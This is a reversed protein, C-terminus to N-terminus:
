WLALWTLLLKPVEGKRLCKVNACSLAFDGATLYHLHATKGQVAPVKAGVESMQFRGGWLHRHLIVFRFSTNERPLHYNDIMALYAATGGSRPVVLLLSAQTSVPYRVVETIKVKGM